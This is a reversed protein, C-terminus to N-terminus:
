RAVVARHWPMLYHGLTTLLWSSGMGLLGIVLMGVIIDAYNQM